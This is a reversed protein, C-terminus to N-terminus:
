SGDKLGVMAAVRGRCVPCQFSWTSSTMSACKLCLCVHRCHLITVERPNSLCIVCEAGEGSGNAEMDNSILPNPMTGYLADLQRVVNGCQALQKEIHLKGLGDSPINFFTRHATVKTTESSNAVLDLMVHYNGPEKSFDETIESLDSCILLRGPQGNGAKFITECSSQMSTPNVLGSGVGTGDGGTVLFSAVARGSERASFSFKLYWGGSDKDLVCTDRQLSVLSQLIPALTLTNIPPSSTTAPQQTPPAQNGQQSESRSNRPAFSGEAAASSTCGM